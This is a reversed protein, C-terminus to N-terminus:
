SRRPSKVTEVHVWGVVRGSPDQIELDLRESEAVVTGIDRLMQAATKTGEAWAADDDPLEVVVSAEESSWKFAYLPM